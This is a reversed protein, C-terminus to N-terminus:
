YQAKLLGAPCRRVGICGILGTACKSCSMRMSCIVFDLEKDNAKTLLFNVEHTQHPGLQTAEDSLEAAKRRFGTPMHMGFLAHISRVYADVHYRTQTSVAVFHTLWVTPMSCSAVILLAPIWLGQLGGCPWECRAMAQCCRHHIALFSLCPGALVPM